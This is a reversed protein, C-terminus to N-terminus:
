DYEEFRPVDAFLREHDNVTKAKCLDAVVFFMASSRVSVPVEFTLCAFFWSDWWSSRHIPPKVKRWLVQWGFGNLVAKLWDSGWGNFHDLDFKYNLILFSCSEWSQEDHRSPRTVCKTSGLHRLNRSNRAGVSPDEGTGESARWHRLAMSRSIDRPNQLALRMFPSFVLAAQSHIWPLIRVGTRTRHAHPMPMISGASRWNSFHFFTFRHSFSQM